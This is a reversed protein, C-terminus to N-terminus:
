LSIRESRMFLIALGEDLGDAGGGGDVAGPGMSAAVVAGLGGGVDAVGTGSCRSLALRITAYKHRPRRRSRTM